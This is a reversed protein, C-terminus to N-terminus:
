ELPQKLAELVPNDREYIDTRFQLTGQDDVWATWYEIHVPMTQKLNLTVNNPAALIQNIDEATMGQPRLLLEALEIPKSVRICGSSFARENKSFLDRSPTDHLYVDYSNPFMFKVQGLANLPGPSQVLRYPFQKHLRAWDVNEPNVVNNSGFDYLTFGYKKLYSIDKKIEPLKDQVALKQPVTWTPNLVLYRIKDSFVPTKRFNRGVIVPMQMVLEGQNFVRLDFNAINVVIFSDGMNQDLWRWRELNVVIQNARDAPSLNLATLTNKGIIGDADLGHRTQFRIVAANLAQNYTEDSYFGAELDGWVTLRRTIEPLRDDQQNPKIAPSLALPGWNDSPLDKLMALAKILRRYRPPRPRVSDLVEAVSQHDLNAILAKPNIYERYSKWESTLKEPDVKGSLLHQALTLFADTLLLDLSMSTGDQLADQIANFHYDSANLGEDGVNSITQLLETASHNPELQGSEEVALWIPTFGRETYLELLAQHNHIVSDKIQAPYGAGWSELLQRIVIVSPPLSDALLTSSHFVAALALVVTRALRLAVIRHPLNLM